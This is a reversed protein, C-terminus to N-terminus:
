LFSGYFFGRLGWGTMVALLGLIFIGFCRMGARFTLDHAPPWYHHCILVVLITWTLCLYWSLM